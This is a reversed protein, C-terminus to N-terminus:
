LEVKANVTLGRENNLKNLRDMIRAATAPDAASVEDIIANYFDMQKRLDWVTEYAKLARDLCEGRLKIAQAFINPNKIERRGEADEPGLAFNRLQQVDDLMEQLQGMYDIQRRVEPGGAYIIAPSVPAPVAKKAAAVKAYAITSRLIDVDPVGNKVKAVIRWFRRMDMEPFQDKVVKWNKAGHEAYHKRIVSVAAMKMDADAFDEAM